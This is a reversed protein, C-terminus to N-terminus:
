HGISSCVFSKRILPPVGDPGPDKNSNSDLLGNLVELVTFQLGGFPLEDSMDDPGPDLPV